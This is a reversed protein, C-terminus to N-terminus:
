ASVITLVPCTARRVVQNTTSGFLGMDVANRGRIGIVILDAGAERAEEMLEVHPKGFRTEIAPAEGDPAVTRAVEELRGRASTELYRRYEALALAQEPPVGVSPPAPPEHWPWELVHLLTLSAGSERAMSAAAAAAKVSWDSFDVACLVHGFRTTSAQARPPVTLVPCAARRLVKETVSGLLLHQFGSAGHTGMVLLDAPLAGVHHLIAHVPQGATVVVEHAVGAAVAPACAKTAHERATLLETPAPGQMASEDTIAAGYARNVAPYVHLVTLHAKYWQAVAVAQELAHASTESFDIPCLIRNITM